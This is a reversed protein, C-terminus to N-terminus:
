KKGFGKSTKNELVELEGKLMRLQSKMERLQEDSYLHDQKVLKDMLKILKKARTM